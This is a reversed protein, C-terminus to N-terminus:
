KNDSKHSEKKFRICDWLISLGLIILFILILTMVIRM